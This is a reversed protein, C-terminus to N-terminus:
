QMQEIREFASWKYAQLHEIVHSRDPGGGHSLGKWLFQGADKMSTFVSKFTDATEGRRSHGLFQHQVFTVFADGKTQANKQITEYQHSLGDTKPSQVEFILQDIWGDFAARAEAYLSQGTRYDAKTIDHDAALGVLIRAQAEANSKYDSLIAIGQALDSPLEAVVTAAGGLLWCM